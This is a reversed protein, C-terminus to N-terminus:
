RAPASCRRPFRCQECALEDARRSKFIGGCGVCRRDLAQDFENKESRRGLQLCLFQIHNNVSTRSRGLRKGIEEGTLGNMRGQRLIADEETTWERPLGRKSGLLPENPTRSRRTIHTAAM